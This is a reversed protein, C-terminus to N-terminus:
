DAAVAAVAPAPALLFEEIFVDMPVPKGILFGQAYDVGEARVVELIEPDSVFEAVTQKGLDRAIGVISRM